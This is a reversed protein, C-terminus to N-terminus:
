SVNERATIRDCGDFHASRIIAADDNGRSAFFDPTVMKPSPDDMRWWLPNQFGQRTDGGAVLIESAHNMVDYDQNVLTRISALYRNQSRSHGAFKGSDLMIDRERDRPIHTSRIVVDIIVGYVVHVATENNHDGARSGGPRVIFAVHGTIPHALADREIQIDKAVSPVYKRLRERVALLLATEEDLWDLSLLDADTILDTHEPITIPM